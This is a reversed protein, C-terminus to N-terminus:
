PNRTRNYPTHIWNSWRAEGSFSPAIGLDRRGLTRQHVMWSTYNLATYLEARTAEAINLTASWSHPQPTWPLSEWCEEVKLVQSEKLASGDGRSKM